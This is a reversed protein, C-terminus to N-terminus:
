SHPSTNELERLILAILGLPVLVKFGILGGLLVPSHVSLSFFLWFASLHGASSCPPLIHSNQWFSPRTVCQPHSPGASHPICALGSGKVPLSPSPPAESPCSTPAPTVTRVMLCFGGKAAVTVASDQGLAVPPLGQILAVSASGLVLTVKSASQSSKHGFGRIVALWSGLEWNLM